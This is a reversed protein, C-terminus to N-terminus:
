KTEEKIALEICEILFNGAKFIALAQFYEYIDIVINTAIIAILWRIPHPDPNGLLSSILAVLGFSSLVNIIRSTWSRAGSLMKSNEWTHILKFRNCAEIRGQLTTM